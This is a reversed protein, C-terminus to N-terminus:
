HLIAIVACSTLNRLDIYINTEYNRKKKTTINSILHYVPCISLRVELKCKTSTLSYAYQGGGGKKDKVILTNQFTYKNLM